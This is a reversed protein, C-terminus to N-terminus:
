LELPLSEAYVSYMHKIWNKVKHTTKFMDQTERQNPSTNIAVMNNIIKYMMILRAEKRRTQLSKWKLDELMTNVSSKNRHRGTVYRAARRQVKEIKDIQNKHYPDWVPPM